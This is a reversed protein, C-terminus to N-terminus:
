FSEHQRKATKAAWCPPPPQQRAWVIAMADSRKHADAPGRCVGSAGVDAFWRARILVSGASLRPRGGRSGRQMWRGVPRPSTLVFCLDSPKKNDRGAQARIRRENLLFRM